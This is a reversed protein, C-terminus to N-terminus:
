PQRQPLTLEFRVQREDVKEAKAEGRHATLIARVLPLGIAPAAPRSAPAPTEFPDDSYKIVIEPELCITLHVKGARNAGTEVLIRGGAKCAHISWNILGELAASLQGTDVTVPLAGKGPEFVLSLRNAAAFPQMRNVAARALDNLDAPQASRGKKGNAHLQIAEALRAIHEIQEVGATQPAAKGPLRNLISNREAGGALRPISLMEHKLASLLESLVRENLQANEATGQLSRAREEVARFLRANVLSIAAYDATAEVLHQESINFAQAQKRMTCLVGIVQKQAKVPVILASQGLNLMKFRKLPEGFISLTEGSIAVLNSIGDDWPQHIREALSPPLNRHAALLFNKGNEERVVFWGLDAQTAKIAGEVIKDFLLSQDTLSTVAKGISFITTLERVRMQLEQNTQQLQRSLQERERREHVSKMAREVVAVVETERMPYLLYDAAGLRFAQIIDMEAGKRGIVIVPINLRQSTLAVMLDKASLGPLNLDALVVDPATQIAKSIASNVDPASVVQYRDAALAQRGVLDSIVPDPEVILIRDRANNM